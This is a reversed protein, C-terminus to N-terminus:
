DASQITKWLKFCLIGYHDQNAQIFSPLSYQFAPEISINFVFTTEPIHPVPPRKDKQKFPASEATPMLAAIRLLDEKKGLEPLLEYREPKISFGEYNSSKKSRIRNRLSSPYNSRGKSVRLFVSVGQITSPPLEKITFMGTHQLIALIDSDSTYIDSGWLHADRYGKNSKSMFESAVKM